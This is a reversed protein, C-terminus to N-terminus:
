HILFSSLLAGLLGLLLLMVVLVPLLRKLRADTTTQKKSKAKGVSPTPADHPVEPALPKSRLYEGATPAVPGAGSSALPSWEPPDVSWFMFTGADDSYEVFDDKQESVGTSSPATNGNQTENTKREAPQAAPLPVTPRPRRDSAPPHISTGSYTSTPPEKAPAATPSPPAFQASLSAQPQVTALPGLAGLPQSHRLPPMPTKPAPLSGGTSFSSHGDRAGAGAGVPPQIPPIQPQPTPPMLPTVSKAVPSAVPAVTVATQFAASFEKASAFREDARKQLAIALVGNVADSINPVFARASPAPQRVHKLLVEVPTQGSFPPQGALIRFLLVGLSYIDSAPRLIGLSQEPSAYEASGWGVQTLDRQQDEIGSRYGRAIGFDSLLVRGDVAVLVNTPKINGHVGEHEHVYQVAGCLQQLIPLAQMASLKGGVRRLLDDLTGTAVFPTVAYLLGEGEGFELFPLINPHDFQGIKEAEAMFYNRFSERQAYGPRFVKVAVEYNGEEQRARYVDAVGGKSIRQLLLYDSLMVGELNSM